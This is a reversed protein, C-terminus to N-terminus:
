VPEATLNWTIVSTYEEGDAINQHKPLSLEIEGLSITTFGSAGNVATIVEMSENDQLLQLTSPGSFSANNYNNAVISGLSIQTGTLSKNGSQFAKSSVSLSWSGAQARKDDVIVHNFTNNEARSATLSAGLSPDYNALTGFSWNTVKSISIEGSESPTGPDVVGGGDGNEDPKVPPAVPDTVALVSFIGDTTVEQAKITLGNLVITGLSVLVISSLIIKKM